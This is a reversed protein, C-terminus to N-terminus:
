KLGARGGLFPGRSIDKVMVTFLLNTFHTGIDEFLKTIAIKQLNSIITPVAVVSNLLGFLIPIIPDRPNCPCLPSM